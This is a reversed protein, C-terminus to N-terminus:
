SVKELKAAIVKYEILLVGGASIAWPIFGMLWSMAISVLLRSNIADALCPIALLSFMTPITQALWYIWGFPTFHTAQFCDTVLGIDSTFLSGAQRYFLIQNHWGAYNLIHWVSNLVLVVVGVIVLIEGRARIIENILISVLFGNMVIFGTYRTWVLQTEQVAISIAARFLTADKAELNNVDLRQRM